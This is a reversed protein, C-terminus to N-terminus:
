IDRIIKELRDNNAAKIIHMHLNSNTRIISIKDKPELAEFQKQIETLKIIDQETMNDVAKETAM